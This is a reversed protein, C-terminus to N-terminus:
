ESVTPSKPPVSVLLAYSNFHQPHVAPPRTEHIVIPEHTNMHTHTKNSQSALFHRNRAANSPTTPQRVSPSKRGDVTDNSCHRRSIAYPSQDVPRARLLPTTRRVHHQRRHHDNGNDNNDNNVDDDDGSRKHQHERPEPRVHRKPRMTNLRKRQSTTPPAPPTTSQPTQNRGDTNRQNRVRILARMVVVLVACM